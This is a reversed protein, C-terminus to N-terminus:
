YPKQISQKNIKEEVVARDRKTKEENAFHAGAAILKNITNVTAQTPIGPKMGELFWKGYIPHTLMKSLVYPSALVSASVAMTEPSNWVGGGLVGGIAGAQLIPFLISNRGSAKNAQSGNAFTDIINMRHRIEPSIIERANEEGMNRMKKWFTPGMVVGDVNQSDAIMNEIYGAELNKWTQTQPGIAKKAMIVLEPQENKFIMKAALSPHTDAKNALKRIFENNFIESKNKYFDNIRQYETFIQPNGSSRAGLEMQRTILEKAKGALMKSPTDADKATLMTNLRARMDHAGMFTDSRGSNELDEKLSKLITDGFETKGTKRGKMVNDIWNIVPQYNVRVGGAQRDLADYMGSAASHFANKGYDIASQIEEGQVMPSQRTANTFLTDVTENVYDKLGKEQAYKRKQIAGTGGFSSELMHQWKGANSWQDAVQAPLLSQEHEKGLSLIRGLKGQKIYKNVYPGLEEGAEQVGRQIFQPAVHPYLKAAGKMMGTGALDTVGQYVGQKGMRLLAEKYSQPANEPDVFHQVGQTIAEGAISGAAAGLVGGIVGGPPGAMGTGVSAGKIGGVVSGIVPGGEGRVFRQLLSPTKSISGYEAEDSSKKIDPSPKYQGTYMEIVEEQALRSLAKFDPNNELVLRKAEPSLNIFDTEFGTRTDPQASM